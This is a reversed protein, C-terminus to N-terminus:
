LKSYANFSTMTIANARARSQLRGHRQNQHYKHSPCPWGEELGSLIPHQSWCTRRTAQGKTYSPSSHSPRPLHSPKFLGCGSRKSPSHFGLQRGSTCTLGVGNGTKTPKSVLASEGTQGAKKKMLCFFDGSALYSIAVERARRSSSSGSAVAAELGVLVSTDIQLPYPHAPAM